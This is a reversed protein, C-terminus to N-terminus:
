SRPSHLSAPSISAPTLDPYVRFQDLASMKGNLPSPQGNYETTITKQEGKRILSTLNHCRMQPWPNKKKKKGHTRKYFNETQSPSAPFVTQNQNSQEQEKSIDVNISAATTDNGNVPIQWGTGTPSAEM